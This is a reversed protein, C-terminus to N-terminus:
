ASLLLVSATGYHVAASGARPLSLLAMCLVSCIYSLTQACTLEAYLPYRTTCHEHAICHLAHFFWAQWDLSCEAYMAGCFVKRLRPKNAIPPWVRTHPSFLPRQKLTSFRIRFGSGGM